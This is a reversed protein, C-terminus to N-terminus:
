ERKKPNIIKECKVPPHKDHCFACALSLKSANTDRKRSYTTRSSKHSKANTFLAATALPRDENDLTIDTGAEMIELEHFICERLEHGTLLVLERTLNRRVDGPLKELIIPVLLSGYSANAQGLSELGRM